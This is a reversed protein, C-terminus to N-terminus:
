KRGGGWDERPGGEWGGACGVVGCGLWVTFLYVLSPVLIFILLFIAGAIAGTWLRKGGGRPRLPSVKDTGPGTPPAKGSDLGLKKTLEEWLRSFPEIPPQNM